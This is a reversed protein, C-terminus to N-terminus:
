SKRRSSSLEKWSAVIAIAMADRVHDNTRAPHNIVFGPLAEKIVRDLDGKKAGRGGPRGAKGLLTARVSQGSLVHVPLGRSTALWALGGAVASTQLLTKGRFTEWVAGSPTEVAAIVPVGTYGSAATAFDLVANCSAYTAEAKGGEVFRVRGGEGTVLAWGVHVSGPDFAIVYPQM